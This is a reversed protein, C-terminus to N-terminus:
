RATRPALKPAKRAVVAGSQSTRVTRTVRVTDIVGYSPANVIVTAVGSGNVSIYFGDGTGEGAPASNGLMFINGSNRVLEVTWTSNGLTAANWTGPLTVTVGNQSDLLAGSTVYQIVKAGRASPALDATQVAGNNIKSSTVANNKLDNTGILGHAMAGGTGGVLLGATLVAVALAPPRKIKNTNM